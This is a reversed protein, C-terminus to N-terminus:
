AGKYCSRPIILTYFPSNIRTFFGLKLSLLALSSIVGFGM